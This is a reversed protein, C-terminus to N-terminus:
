ENKGGSTNGNLIKIAKEVDEDTIGGDDVDYTQIWRSKLNVEEYDHAEDDLIVFSEVYKDKLWEWIGKGRAFLCYPDTKDRIYLGQKSLKKDLYTGMEDQGEKDSPEWYYRWTSVLVIKAGTANVITQLKKVLRDEIGVFNMCVDRTNKCNLVGDVDLFIIKAM